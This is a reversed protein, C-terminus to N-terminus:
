QDQHVLRVYDIGVMFSQVAKPNAGLIDFRLRHKGTKLERNEFVLVGTTSVDTDYLDLSESLIGGDLSIKVIGYDVARTMVIEVDYNGAATEPLELELFDGPRAGTWWLHQHDSWRDAAYGQMDQAQLNGESKGLIKVQEGEIADPVRATASDIPAQPGKIPVQTPSGLYAILDIIDAPALGDLLGEPMTSLKSLSRHDIASRAVVVTDNLTRVTIASDTTRQIMGSVVRGDDLELITMRYDKGLVASPDVINELIYDLNARNSGTIDPGIAEGEGFLRHCKACNKAFIRRGNGLNAKAQASPNCLKKLDTMRAQKDASSERITGWVQELQEILDANKLSQIQRVDYAHLDGRSVKESGIATLLAQAYAPRSTLTSIANRRQDATLDQYLSLIRHPTRSDDYNALGRLAASRLEPTELAMLLPGAAETDKGRLLIELAQQRRPIPADDDQLRKRLQGFVRQDGFLIAVEDTQDRVEQLESDSLLEYTEQWSSPMPIGVRGEFAALMEQLISTQQNAPVTKLSEVVLALSDTEAAARRVIYQNVLPIESNALLGLAKRPNLVVLPEIGYWYMLPLNHDEQDDSHTLLGAVIAWRNQPELRQLASALYLRVLPSADSRAMSEFETQLSSDVNGDECALQIAWSRVYESKDELLGLIRTTDLQDLAHLTWVARLRQSEQDAGQTLQWLSDSVLSLNLDQRAQREQLIRRATRVFWENRHKHLEVLEEDSMTRLNPYSKKTEGFTINYIRGNTRDWIEPNARHCANRDYWDILYVSGDPGYKLDIGRFWKDNALMFDPARGGTYGSGRRELQDQNIRNGHVNHMFIQNRYRAPWSDGLYIMAGCHAHGGGAALTDAPPDPEHGWWAHDRINGVYHRHVAITKIDDYLHPNFHQGGQRQYRAGQIVHWLHPIVCATIFPHGYENFDL